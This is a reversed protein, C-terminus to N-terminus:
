SPEDLIVEAGADKMQEIARDVDGPRVDIGTIADLFITVDFGARRADFTTEKVCYDTAIGGIYVHTIGRKRLDDVLSTGAPTKGDFASYADRTPDEGKSIVIANAPLELDPHFQAGATEQVCHPPWAGGYARFHTTIEPHWDRSVYIPLRRARAEAIHRNLAPVIDAGGHAPLAGGPCFDNQV